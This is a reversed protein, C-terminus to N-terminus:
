QTCLCVQPSLGIYTSVCVHQLYERINKKFTIVNCIKVSIFQSFKLNPFAELVRQSLSASKVAM